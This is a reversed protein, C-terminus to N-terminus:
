NQLLPPIKSLGIKSWKLTRTTINSNKKILHTVQNATYKKGTLKELLSEVGRAKIPSQVMAKFTKIESKTTYAPSTKVNKKKSHGKHECGSGYRSLYFLGDKKKFYITMRFPSREEKEVPLMTYRRRPLKRGDLNRREYKGRKIATKKIGGAHLRDPGIDKGKFNNAADPVKKKNEGYVKCRVCGITYQFIAKDRNESKRFFVLRVWGQVAAEHILESFFIKWMKEGHYLSPLQFLSDLPFENQICENQICEKSIIKPNTNVYGLL